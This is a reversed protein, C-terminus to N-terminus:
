TNRGKKRPSLSLSHFNSGNWIKTTIVGHAAQQTYLLHPKSLCKTNKAGITYLFLLLKQQVYPWKRQTRQLPSWDESTHPLLLIHKLIVSGLFLPMEQCQQNVRKMSGGEERKKKKSFTIHLKNGQTTVAVAQKRYKLLMAPYWPPNPIPTERHGNFAGKANRKPFNVQEPKM